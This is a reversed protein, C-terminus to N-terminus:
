QRALRWWTGVVATATVAIVFIRELAGESTDPVLDMRTVLMLAAAILGLGLGLAIQMTAHRGRRELVAVTVLVAATATILAIM